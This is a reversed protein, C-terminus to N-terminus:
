KTDNQLECLTRRILNLPVSSPAVAFMMSTSRDSCSMLYPFCLQSFWTSFLFLFLISFFIFMLLQFLSKLLLHTNKLRNEFFINYTKDLTALKSSRFSPSINILLSWLSPVYLKEAIGIASYLSLSYKFRRM